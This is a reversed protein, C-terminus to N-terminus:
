LPDCVGKNLVFEPCEWCRAAPLALTPIAAHRKVCWTRSHMKAAKPVLRLFSEELNARPNKAAM